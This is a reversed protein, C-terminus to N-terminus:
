YGHQGYYEVLQKRLIPSLTAVASANDFPYLGSIISDFLETTPPIGPNDIIQKVTNRKVVAPISALYKRSNCIPFFTLEVFTEIENM